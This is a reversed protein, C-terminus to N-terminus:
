CKSISQISFPVRGDGVSAAAGACTAVALGFQQPDVRALAPIYDAVRGQGIHPRVDAHVRAVLASLDQANLM